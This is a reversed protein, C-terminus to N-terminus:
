ADDRGGVKADGVKELARYGIDTRYHADDFSIATVGTYARNLAAPLTPGTGTIGLVRGGATVTAGDSDATGAHFVVVGEMAGAVALGSIPKGKGYAGPYGGSAMVVCAASEGTAGVCSPDLEGTAVSMMIEALDGDLLPLVVQTEPDGFRCNFELVKPGDETIMLGAYLVGRYETDYEEALTRVAATVVDREIEALMRKDVVPAPAYAGMGGTNPGGDGDLARKHDQSPVVSAISRGDTFALISAEEGELHEEVLVRSGAGGFRGETLVADIAALAEDESAAIMVGKGAALGDAKIVVPAGLERVHSVAEGRSTTAWARATPIGARLMLEKAFWKSGELRAASKSPGFVALREDAFRDAIGMTLPIEPGVVTLDCREESALRVLGEIDDAPVPLCRALEAIGANGPAAIIDTVTPSQALKWVLAHERGGGGVVLIKM